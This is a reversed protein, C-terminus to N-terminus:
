DNKVKAKQPLPEFQVHSAGSKALTIELMQRDGGRLM